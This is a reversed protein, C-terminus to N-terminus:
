SFVIEGSEPNYGWRKGKVGEYKDGISELYERNEARFENRERATKAMEHELIIRDRQLIERRADMLAAQAELLKLQVENKQQIAEYTKHRESFYNLQSLELDSLYIKGQIEADIGKPEDDEEEVSFTDDSEPAENAEEKVKEIVVQPKRRTKKSQRKPAKRPKRKKKEPEKKTEEEENTENATEKGENEWGDDGDIVLFELEEEAMGELTDENLEQEQMHDERSGKIM